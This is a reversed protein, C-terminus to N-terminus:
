MGCACASSACAPCACADCVCPSCLYVPYITHQLALRNSVVSGKEGTAPEVAPDKRNVAAACIDKVVLPSDKRRLEAIMKFFEREGSKSLAGFTPPAAVPILGHTKLVVLVRNLVYGRHAATRGIEIAKLFDVLDTGEDISELAEIDFLCTTTGGLNQPHADNPDNHGDGDEFPLGADDAVPLAASAAAM